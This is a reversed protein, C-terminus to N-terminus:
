QFAISEATLSPPSIELLEGLPLSYIFIRDPPTGYLARIAISYCALQYGYEQGLRTTLLSPDRREKETIRDTKYDVLIRRGDKTTIVLDISGQVFLTHERDALADPHSSLVSLPLTTAFKQERAVERANLLMAFLDSRCFRELLDRRLITASTENLFGERLMRELERDIGHEKLAHFDCFQLFAHTATGVEAASPTQRDLLLSDFPLPPANMM